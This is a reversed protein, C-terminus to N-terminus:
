TCKEKRKYIKYNQLEDNPRHDMKLKNKFFDDHSLSPKKNQKMTIKM